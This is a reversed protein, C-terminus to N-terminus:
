TMKKLFIGLLSGLVLWFVLNTLVAAYIFHHMLEVPATSGHISPQPAGIVHPAVLLVIGLLRIACHRRPVLLWLGGATCLVAMLWWVQRDGLRAAETGPVEPPLGLSPAVFFVIYGALGWLLGSRWGTMGRSLFITVALLLAFGIALTMNAVASLMVRKGDNVPQKAPHHGAEGPGAHAAPAAAAAHEYSEAELLIPVVALQQVATLLIGALVGALAAAAVIRKLAATDLM